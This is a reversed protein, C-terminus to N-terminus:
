VILNIDDHSDNFEKEFDAWWTKTNQGYEAAIVNIDIKDGSDAPPPTTDGGCAALSLVMVLALLAALFKKM